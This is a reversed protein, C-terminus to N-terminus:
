AMLEVNGFRKDVEKEKVKLGMNCDLLFNRLQWTYM